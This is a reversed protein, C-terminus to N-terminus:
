HLKLVLVSIHFFWREVLSLHSSRKTTASSDVLMQDEDEDEVPEVEDEGEDESSLSRTEDDQVQSAKTVATIVEKKKGTSNPSQPTFKPSLLDDSVPKSAATPPKVM